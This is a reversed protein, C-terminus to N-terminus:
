AAWLWQGHECVSGDSILAGRARQFAKKRGEDTADPLAAYFRQRWPDERVVPLGGSLTADPPIEGEEDMAMMLCRIAIDKHTPKAPPVEQVAGFINGPKSAVAAMVTPVARGKTDVLRPATVPKMDFWLPEFDPGRHKGQWHLKALHGVKTLTLNGDVEAIFAGGGRPQLNTAEANKTPHCPVFVVPRGPLTTLSRMTRAHQGLATNSNEDDGLFYAASTDVVIMDVSGLADVDTRIREMLGAINFSGPVFHVDVADIDFGMHHSMAIWRMRVDDPNEGALYLVRGKRVEHDGLTGGLATLAAILLMVATKGTGTMATVSYIFGAQAVHDVHYDPPVFGAVFDASSVIGPYAPANDNAAKPAAQRLDMVNDLGFIKAAIDPRNERRAKLLAFSEAQRTKREAKHALRRAEREADARVEAALVDPDPEAWDADDIARDLPPLPIMDDVDLVDPAASHM